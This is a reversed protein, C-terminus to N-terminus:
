RKRQCPAKARLEEEIDELQRGKTEPAFFFTFLWFFTLFGTFALFSYAGVLNQWPLFAVGVIFSAMWNTMVAVANANGRAGQDFLESVYFWPISGPGTAFSIVFFFVFVVSPWAAAGFRTTSQQLLSLCIVILISTVWMGSMGILMLMRRGMRDVLATSVITMLVNITCMGLTAGSAEDVNLNAYKEFIQGSFFMAANIGSLQQAFMMMVAILLAWRLVPNKFMDV